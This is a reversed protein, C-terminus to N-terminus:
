PKETTSKMMEIPFIIQSYYDYTDDIPILFMVENFESLESLDLEHNVGNSSTIIKKDYTKWKLLDAFNKNQESVKEDLNDVADQVTNGLGTESGDYFLNEATLEDSDTILYIIDDSLKDNPLADYEAQTLKVIRSGSSGGYEQGDLIFKAMIKRGKKYVYFLLQLRRNM